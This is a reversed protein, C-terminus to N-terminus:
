VDDLFLDGVVRDASGWRFSDQSVKTVVNTAAVPNGDRLYGNTRIVWQDPGVRTWFGENFGGESDFVWSRLQGRVPDWGVRQVGHNVLAGRVKMTFERLLYHGDESRKCTTQVVGHENEDVWEGVMWDLEALAAHGEDPSGPPEARDRVEATLWRGDKLVHIATFPGRRGGQAEAILVGDEIAVGPAPFRLSAIELRLTPVEPNEFADLFRQLLADRGEVVVGDEEVVRADETFLAVVAK